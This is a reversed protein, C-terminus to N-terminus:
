NKARFGSQFIIEWLALSVGYGETPDSYHLLLHHQKVNSMAEPFNNKFMGSSGSSNSIYNKKM